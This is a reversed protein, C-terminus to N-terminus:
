DRPAAPAPAPIVVRAYPLHTVATLSRDNDRVIALGKPFPHHAQVQGLDLGMWYPRWGPQWGRALLRVGLDSPRPPDLSWCGSGRPPHRLYFAVLGDLLGSAGETTLDPFAIMSSSETTGTTWCLGGDTILDGGLALSEQRFLEKHNDAVAQELEAPGASQLITPYTM